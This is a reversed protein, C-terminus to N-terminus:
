LTKWEQTADDFQLWVQNRADWQLYAKRAPDWQPQYATGPASDAAAVPQEVPEAVPRPEITSAGPEWSRAASTPALAGAPNVPQSVYAKKIVYTGGVMDGVRKHGTSAFASIGGVLPFVFGTPFQDVIWLLTRLFARGLGPPEGESNVTRIGTLSKGVTFGRLGDLLVMFFLAVGAGIALAIWVDQRDLVYLRDGLEVLFQDGREKVRFEDTTARFLGGAEDAFLVIPVVFAAIYIAADILHAVIRRGMVATPDRAETSSM